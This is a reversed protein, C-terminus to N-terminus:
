MLFLAFYVILGVILPLSIGAVITLVTERRKKKHREEWCARHFTVRQQSLELFGTNINKVIMDNENDMIKKCWYCRQKQLTEQSMKM